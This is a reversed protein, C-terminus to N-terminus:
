SIDKTEIMRLTVRFAAGSIRVCPIVADLGGSFTEYLASKKISRL